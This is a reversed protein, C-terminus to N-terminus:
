LFYKEYMHKLLEKHLKVGSADGIVADVGCYPCVATKGQDIWALIESADFIEICSFCGCRSSKEIEARNRLSHRHTKEIIINNMFEDCNLM